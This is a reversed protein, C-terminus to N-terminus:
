AITCFASRQECLELQGVADHVDAAAVEALRLHLLEVDLAPHRRAVAVALRVARRAEVVELRAARAASGRRSPCPGYQWVSLLVTIADGRMRIGSSSFWWCASPETVM